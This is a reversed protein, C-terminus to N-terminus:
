DIGVEPFEVIINHGIWKQTKMNSHRSNLVMFALDYKRQVTSTIM